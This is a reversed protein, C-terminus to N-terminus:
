RLASMVSRHQLAFILGRWILLGAGAGILGLTFTLLVMVPLTVASAVLTIKLLSDVRGISMLAPAFTFGAANVAAALGCVIMTDTVTVTEPGFVYYLFPEAGFFLLTAILVVWAFGVQLTRKVLRHIKGRKGDAEMRALEPFFIPGLLEGIKYMFDTSQRAIHFLSAGGTGLIGGVMLIVGHNMVTSVVGEINTITVFRWIGPFGESLARWSGKFRPTIGRKVAEGWAIGMMYLGSFIGAVCWIVTLHIADGGTILLPLTGALRILANLGHQQALVAFRDVLRLFGTPTAGTIFVISIVYWPAFAIVDEPWGFFRGAVPAFLAALAVSVTFAIADLRLTFGLLRKMVKPNELQDAGYRTVAAWTDFRLIGAFIRVYAHLLAVVGFAEIGCARVAIAAAALNVLGFVARGGLIVSM